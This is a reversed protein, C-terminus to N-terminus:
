KCRRASAGCCYAAPKISRPGFAAAARFRSSRSSAGLSWGAIGLRNTDASAVSRLYEVAALVDDAEAQLRGMLVPGVDRGVAESWAPGDSRGYGRREPVLVAYGAAVYLGALRVWPVPRREFGARAGHNYILIPFPGSGDPKYFYGQIRLGGSQYNIETYHQQARTACTTLVPVLGAAAGGAIVRRRTTMPVADTAAESQRVVGIVWFHRYIAAIKCVVFSFLRTQAREPYVSAAGRHWAPLPRGEISVVM